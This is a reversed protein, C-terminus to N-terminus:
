FLCNNRVKATKSPLQTPFIQSQSATTLQSASVSTKGTGRKVTTTMAGTKGSSGTKGPPATKAASSTTKGAANKGARSASATKSGPTQSAEDQIGIQQTSSPPGMPQSPPGTPQSHLDSHQVQSSADTPNM